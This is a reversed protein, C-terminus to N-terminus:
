EPREGLTKLVGHITNAGSQLASIVNKAPSQLLSVIEAIVEEKSKISALTDLQDAGMYIGEEAYAGKLAPIGEKKYEKLLKAPVNAVQAFLVATNGKLAPYLPEFDIESAEFAKHLLKNKVVVMKIDNKFCKRRLNSTAEANLGTVDVLYFHPYEKLKAGLDNIITDKVEKKM